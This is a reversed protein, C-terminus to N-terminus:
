FVKVDYFCEEATCNIDAVYFEWFNHYMVMMFNGM